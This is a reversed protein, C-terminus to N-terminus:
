RNNENRQELFSNRIKLLTDQYEKTKYDPYTWEFSKFAGKQYSLTVEAYVGRALCIRQFFNKTSLLVLQYDNIYGPDINIKRKGNKSFKKELKICYLKIPAFNCPNILKELSVFSRKLDLGMEQVYYDTHNFDLPRSEFDIKGIKKQLVEKTLSYVKHDSYIFGIVPKVRNPPKLKLM